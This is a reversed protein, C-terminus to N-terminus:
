WLDQRKIAFLRALFYQFIFFMVTFCTLLFSVFMAISYDIMQNEISQSTFILMVPAIILIIKIVLIIQPTLKIYNKKTDKKHQIRLVLPTVNDATEHVVKKGTKVITSPMKVIVYITFVVMIITIAAAIIMFPTNSGLDVVTSPKAV